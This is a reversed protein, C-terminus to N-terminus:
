YQLFRLKQKQRLKWVFLALVAYSGLLWHWSIKLSLSSFPINSFWNVLGVLYTLLLWCPWSLIWGLFPLFMGVLGFLFGFGLIFSLLPVILINTLPAVSSMYGFNYILIPLTFIQASLTMALVTRLNLFKEEPIFKLQNRFFPLLYIIGLMALFSLQFGVDLGLLLPNFILMATAAFVISRSSFNLRGFYQALLYLGGMIGARIASPQLGTLLIFLIILIIAFYFAQKRWFGFGILLSMLISSLIAVHMGSVCTIHRVGTINFKNKWEDSITQKDGLIIAGLISSQPPSLSAYVTERLKNKFFLIKSVIFNGQKKAIVEIEPWYVVSYIGDKALYDKYNFDEFEKPTLLNGTIKLKDGYRYEPYRNATVLIKGEINEPKITLKVNNERIDPEKVIQGIFTLTQERDNYEKLENNILGLKAQQHHWAGGMLILLCFGVVVLKKGAGNDRGQRSGKHDAWFVSILFLGFILVGLMALQSIPIISNLFIGGIFALCFYLFLGSATM